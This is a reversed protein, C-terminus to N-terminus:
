ALYSPPGRGPPPGAFRPSTSVSASVVSAAPRRAAMRQLVVPPPAPLAVAAACALPCACSDPLGPTVPAGDAGGHACLLALTEPGPAPAALGTGFGQVLLAWGALLLWALRLTSLRLSPATM